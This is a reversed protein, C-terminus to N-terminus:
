QANFRKKTVNSATTETSNMEIQSSVVTSNKNISTMWKRFEKMVQRNFVCYILFIFLGQLSNLVTFLHSFLMTSEDIQFIGFIWPCGLVLMRAAAKLTLTRTESIKSVNKNRSKFHHQLYILTSILLVTNVVIIFCVPGQFSWNFGLELTLWCRTKTGYGRVFVAASIIVIAAPVTYSSIYLYKQKIIHTRTYNTVTLHRSMIFLQLSDLFMWAFVVLFLYHLSGAILACVVPHKMRMGILFIFDAIFLTLSLHKHLITNANQISRCKIFIAISAGLCILSIILGIYTIMELHKDEQTLRLTFNVMETLNSIIAKNSITASIVKSSLKTTKHSQHNGEIERNLLAGINNFVLFSVAIVDLNNEAMITSRHVHISNNAVQIKVVKDANQKGISQVKLVFSETKVTAVGETSLTLGIVMAMNELLTMVTSAVKVKQTSNLNDLRLSNLINNAFVPIEKTINRGSSNHCLKSQFCDASQLISSSQNSNWSYISNCPMTTFNKEVTNACDLPNLQCVKGSSLAATDPTAQFGTICNCQYSGLTNKCTTHRGCLSSECEDVDQCVKEMSLNDTTPTPKFGPICNCHYSGLTNSCITHHGCPLSECEDIDECISNKDSLTQHKYGTSCVCHFSGETNQCTAEQACPFTDCENIDQCVKQMSLNATTPTPKFGPICNCQYSGLTNSCITHHGCPLSECEDIDECISNKDSLTQHKYGTSCVCRFSGETNQCTAEQACPFTDCENIDKCSYQSLRFGNKCTCRYSGVTNICKKSPKCPDNTCENIDICDTQSNPDIQYGSSCTNVPSLVAWFVVLLPLIRSMSGLGTRQM